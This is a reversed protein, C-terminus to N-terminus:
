LENLLDEINYADPVKWFQYDLYEIEQKRFDVPEGPESEEKPKEPSSNGDNNQKLKNRKMLLRQFMTGNSLISGIQQESEESDQIMRNSEDDKPMRHQYSEEDRGYDQLNKTWKVELPQLQKECFVEWETPQESDLPM